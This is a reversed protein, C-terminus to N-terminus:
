TEHARRLLSSVEQTAEPERGDEQECDGCATQGADNEGVTEVVRACGFLDLRKRGVPRADDRADVRVVTLGDDARESQLPADRELELLNRGVHLLGDEGDLVRAEELVVANVGYADDARGPLVDRRAAALAARRQRLLDCF